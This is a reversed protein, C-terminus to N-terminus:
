AVERAELPRGEFIPPEDLRLYAWWGARGEPQVSWHAGIEVIEAPVLKDCSFGGCPEDEDDRVVLLPLCMVQGGVWPDRMQRWVLIEDPKVPATRTKWSM